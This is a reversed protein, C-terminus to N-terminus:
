KAIILDFNELGKKLKKKIELLYMWQLLFIVLSLPLTLILFLQKTRTTSYNEFQIKPIKTELNSSLDISKIRINNYLIIYKDLFSFFTNRQFSFLIGFNVKQIKQGDLIILQINEHLETDM